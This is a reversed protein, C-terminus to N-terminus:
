PTEGDVARLDNHMATAAVAAHGVAVAVQDLAAVVDGAAYLGQMGLRQHRDVLICDHDDVRLGLPRVLEVNPESGLAPYLTDVEAFEGGAFSLRVAAEGFEYRLVPRPDWAVGHRALDARDKEHLECVVRTFLTVEPTLHRLFLAEAVGHSEAGLVGIRGSPQASAEYGDCIPCYRLQGAALAADHVKQPVDPPRNDVGTALLVARAHIDEGVTTLAWGSDARTLKTVDGRRLEAGYRRAHVAMRELLERGSIGDPFGPLNHSTPILGARSGGRDFLVVSRRYRALYVAATLGAPGGGIIACDFCEAFREAM